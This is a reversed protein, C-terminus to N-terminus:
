DQLLKTKLESYKLIEPRYEFHMTDFHYWAGGWIFGYKRFIEVIQRPMRNAYVIKDEEKAKPYKWLWYDSYDVGIDIAIGYSHASQRNAGRVKRWYYTGASKLYKRLEPNDSLEEAVKKLQESAHNVKTFSLKQGFWEVPVLNKSVEEPSHGYMKKFLYENRPRGADQLYKPISDLNAYEMSFMDKVSSNDLIETFTKEKHDDFILSDGDLFYIYNDKFDIIYDPYISILVKVEPPFDELSDDKDFFSSSVENRVTDEAVYAYTTLEPLNNSKSKGCTSLISLAVLPLIVVRYDIKM